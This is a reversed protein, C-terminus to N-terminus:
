RAAAGVAGDTVLARLSVATLVNSLPVKVRIRRARTPAPLPERDSLSLYYGIHRLLLGATRLDAYEAAHPPVHVVFLYRPVTFGPGALKNFQVHDLGDFDVVGRRTQLRSVTKVQVDIRPSFGRPTRGPLKICLDVGDLDVDDESWTLGAASALVRVYDAGFKGQHNRADLM